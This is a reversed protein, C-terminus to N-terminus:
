FRFTTPFGTSQFLAHKSTRTEFINETASRAEVDGPENLEISPTQRLWAAPFYPRAGSELHQGVSLVILKRFLAAGIVMAAGQTRTPSRPCSLITAPTTLCSPWQGWGLSM